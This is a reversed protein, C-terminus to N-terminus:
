GVFADVGSRVLDVRGEFIGEKGVNVYMRSADVTDAIGYFELNVMRTIEKQWM